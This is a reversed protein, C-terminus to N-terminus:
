AAAIFANKSDTNYQSRSPRHAGAWRRRARRRLSATPSNSGGTDLRLRAERYRPSKGITMVYNKM